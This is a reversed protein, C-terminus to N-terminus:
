KWRTCMHRATCIQGFSLGDEVIKENARTALDITSLGGPTTIILKRGDPSYANQHFYLSASGAERSLRVVRHGTDPEIWALPPESGAQTTQARVGAVLALATCVMLLTKKM